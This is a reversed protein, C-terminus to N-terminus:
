KSIVDESMEAAVMYPKFDEGMPHVSYTARITMDDDIKIGAFQIIATKSRLLAQLDRWRVPTYREDNIRIVSEFKGLNKGTLM